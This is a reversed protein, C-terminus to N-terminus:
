RGDTACGAVAWCVYVNRDTSSPYSLRKESPSIMACGSRRFFFFSLFGKQRISILEEVWEVGILDTSFSLRVLCTSFPPPRISSNAAWDMRKSQPDFIIFVFLPSVHFDKMVKLTYVMFYQRLIENYDLWIGDNHPPPLLLKRSIGSIMEANNELHSAVLSHRHSPLDKKSMFNDLKV